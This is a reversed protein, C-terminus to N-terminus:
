ALIRALQAYIFYLVTASGEDPCRDAEARIQALIQRHRSAPGGAAYALVELLSTEVERRLEPDQFPLAGVSFPLDPVAGALSAASPTISM